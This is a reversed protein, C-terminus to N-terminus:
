TRSGSSPTDETVDDVVGELKTAEEDFEVLVKDVEVKVMSLGQKARGTSGLQMEHRLALAQEDMKDALPTLNDLMERAQDFLAAFNERNQEVQQDFLNQTFGNSKDGIKESTEAM